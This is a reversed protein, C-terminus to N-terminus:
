YYYYYYYYNITITLFAYLTISKYGAQLGRKQVGNM